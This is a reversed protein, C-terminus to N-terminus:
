DLSHVILGSRLKPEFWTSKPPMIENADAIAMLEELSTPYMAFAVAHTGANVLRELEGLGRIGGVFDIRSSTRPNDIGLMPELVHKQLLAVDLADVVNASEYLKQKFQLAYWNHDMYMCVEHLASPKRQEPLQEVTCVQSLKYLFEEASLGDLDHVARNYDFIKLQDHPFLIALFRNYEENGTHNPNKQALTKAAMAGAASRHHGDAIYTCPVSEYSKVVQEILEPDNIVWLTHGIGDPAVFDYVPDNKFVQQAMAEYQGQDRYTLFVPGTNAKLELVHTTRDKEKEERTLEHKKILGDFYDQAQVCCVLGFQEHTGMKQKYLYLCPAQEQFLAGQDQLSQLNQAAKAYVQPDYANVTEPFDIESRVVHLFSLANDGALEKAEQRNVVDYPVSAVQQAKAPVPRIAKFPFIAAM